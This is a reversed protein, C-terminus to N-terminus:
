KFFLLLETETETGNKGKGPVQIPWQITEQM